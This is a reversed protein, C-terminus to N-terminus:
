LPLLPADEEKGDELKLRSGSSLINGERGYTATLLSSMAREGVRTVVSDQREQQNHPKHQYGTFLSEGNRGGGLGPAVIRSETGTFKGLRSVEYLHVICYKNKQRQNIESLM